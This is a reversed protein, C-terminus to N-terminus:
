PVVPAGPYPGYATSPAVLVYSVCLDVVDNDTLELIDDGREFCDVPATTQSGACLRIADGETLLTRELAAEICAPSATGPAPVLPWTSAACYTVIDGSTLLTEEELRDACQAPAMSTATRCLNVADQDWLDVLDDAAVFCQIPATGPAGLCLQKAKLSDLGEDIADIYCNLAGFRTPQAATPPVQAQGTTTGFVVVVLAGAAVALWRRRSRRVGENCRGGRRFFEHVRRLARM